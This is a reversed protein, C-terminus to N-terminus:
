SQNRHFIIRVYYDNAGEKQSNILTYGIEAM